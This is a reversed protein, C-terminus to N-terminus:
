SALECLLPLSYIIAAVAFVAAYCDSIRIDTWKWVDEIRIQFGLFCSILVTSSETQNTVEVYFFLPTQVLSTKGM